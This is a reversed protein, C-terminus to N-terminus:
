PIQNHFGYFGLIEWHDMTGFHSLDYSKLFWLNQVMTLELFTSAKFDVVQSRKTPSVAYCHDSFLIGQSQHKIVRKGWVVEGPQPKLHGM